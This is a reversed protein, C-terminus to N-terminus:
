FSDTYLELLKDYSSKLGSRFYKEYTDMMGKFNSYKDLDEYDSFHFEFSLPNPKEVVIKPSFDWDSDLLLNTYADCDECIEDGLELKIFNGDWTESKNIPFFQAKGDNSEYALYNYKPNYYPKNPDNEAFLKILEM